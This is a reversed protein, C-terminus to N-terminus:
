RRRWLYSHQTGPLRIEQLYDKMGYGYSAVLIVETSILAAVAGGIGYRPVLLLVLGVTAVVGILMGRARIAQRGCSTLGIGLVSNLYRFPLFISALGLMGGLDAFDKGYFFAMVKSGIFLLTIALGLGAGAASVLLNGIIKAFKKAGTQAWMKTLAPMLASAPLIAMSGLVMLLRSIAAYRGVLEPAAILSLVVVDIQTFALSTVSTAAYPLSERFTERFATVDVKFTVYRGVFFLGVVIRCIAGAIFAGGLMWVPLGVLICGIGVVAFVVTRVVGAIGEFEMREVSRCVAENLVAFSELVCAIAVLWFLYRTEDSYPLIFGIAWLAVTAGGVLAGKVGLASSYKEQLRGIDMAGSHTVWTGLGLDAGVLFYGAVATATAYVGLEQAGGGRAIMALVILNGVRGGLSAVLLAVVNRLARRRGPSGIPM